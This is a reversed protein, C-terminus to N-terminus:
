RTLHPPLPEREIPGDWTSMGEELNYLATFGLQALYHSADQSRVGHQCLVVTEKAPDLQQWSNPLEHLPLLTAQPIHGLYLYEQPTRVDLIVLDPKEAMMQKLTAPQITQFPGHNSHNSSDFPTM